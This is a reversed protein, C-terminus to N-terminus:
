RCVADSGTKCELLSFRLEFLLMVNNLSDLTEPLGMQSIVQVPRRVLNHELWLHVVYLRLKLM